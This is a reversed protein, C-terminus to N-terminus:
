YTALKILILAEEMYRKYAAEPTKFSGLAVRKKNKHISAQYSNGKKNIGPYGHKNKKRLNLSNERSTVVRLNLRRNDLGDHNKHDIVMLYPNNMILRHMSIKVQRRKRNLNYITIAREAYWINGVKKVYWNWQNLYDFDEDDVLAFKGQTLKIEKMRFSRSLDCLCNRQSPIESLAIHGTSTKLKM